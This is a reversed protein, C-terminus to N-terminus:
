SSFTFADRKFTWTRGTAFGASFRVDVDRCHSLWVASCGASAALGKPLGDVPQLSPVPQLFAALLVLRVWNAALKRLGQSSTSRLLDLPVGACLFSTEQPPRLPQERTPDDACELTDSHLDM